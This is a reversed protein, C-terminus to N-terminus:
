INFASVSFCWPVYVPMWGGIAIYKGASVRLFLLSIFHNMEIKSCFYSAVQNSYKVIRSLPFFFLSM